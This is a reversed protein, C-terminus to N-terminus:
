ARCIRGSSLALFLLLIGFPQRSDVHLAGKYGMPTVIYAAILVATLIMGARAPRWEGRWAVYVGVALLLL